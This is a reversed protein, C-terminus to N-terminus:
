SIRRRRLLGIGVLGLGLLGLVGPEPLNQSSWTFSGGGGSGNWTWTGFSNDLGAITSSVVGTGSLALTANNQLDISLSNLQFTFDGGGTVVKWLDVIPGVFPSFTFDMYTVAGGDVIGAAAYDGTPTGQVAASDIQVGTADGIGVGGTPTWTGSFGINGVIPIAAVSTSLLLGCILIYLKNM